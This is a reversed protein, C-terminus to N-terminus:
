ATKRFNGTRACQNFIFGFSSMKCNYIQLLTALDAGNLTLYVQERSNQKEEIETKVFIM